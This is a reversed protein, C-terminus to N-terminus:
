GKSVTDETLCDRLLEIDFKKDDREPRKIDIKDLCDCFNDFINEATKELPCDLIVKGRLHDNVIDWKIWVAFSRSWGESDWEGHNEAWKFYQSIFGARMEHHQDAYTRIDQLNDFVDKATHVENPDKIFIFDPIGSNPIINDDIKANRMNDSCNEGWFVQPSINQDIKGSHLRNGTENAKLDEIEYRWGLMIKKKQFNVLPFEEFSDKLSIEPKKKKWYINEEITNEQFIQEQLIKSWNDGFLIKIRHPKIKNEIFSHTTKKYSIKFEKESNDDLNKALIYFDTKTEPYPKENTIIKYCKDEYTFESHDLIERVLQEARNDTM